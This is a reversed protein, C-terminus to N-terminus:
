CAKVGQLGKRYNELAASKNGLEEMVKGLECYAAPDSKLAVSTELYQRAKGWLQQRAYLRGLTLLLAADNDHDALWSEAHTIQKNIDAGIIQGYIEILKSNWSKKLTGRLVKEAINEGHNNILANAYALLLETDDHLGSPIKGWIDYLADLNNEQALLSLYIKRELNLLDKPKLVNYRRLEPLLTQLNQWDNLELYVQQLLRMVYTHHPVLRKIHTLTALARELQGASLQLQAQTLGVAVEVGSTTAHAKRLYNDRKDYEGQGQAARAAILYNVLPIESYKAAKILNKEAKDWKGEAWQSLGLNTQKRAKQAHREESWQHIKKSISNTKRFISILFYLLLFLLIIIIIMMWLTTEISWQKYSILVYGSNAHIMLGLLVAALLIIFLILLKKM